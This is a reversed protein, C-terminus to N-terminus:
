AGKKNVGNYNIDDLKLKGKDLSFKMEIYGVNFPPKNFILYQFILTNQMILEFYQHQPNPLLYIKPENENYAKAEKLLKEVDLFKYNVKMNVETGKIETLFEEEIVWDIISLSVLTNKIVKCTNKETAIQRYLSDAKFSEFNIGPEISDNFYKYPQCFQYFQILSDIHKETFDSVTKNLERNKQFLFYALVLSLSLVIFFPIKYTKM